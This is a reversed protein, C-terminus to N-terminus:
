TIPTGGGGRREQGAMSQNLTHYTLWKKREQARFNYIFRRDLQCVNVRRALPDVQLYIICHM